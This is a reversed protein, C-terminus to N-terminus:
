SHIYLMPIYIYFMYVYNNYIYNHLLPFVWRFTSKPDPSWLRGVRMRSRFESSFLDHLITRVKRSEQDSQQSALEQKNPAARMAEFQHKM